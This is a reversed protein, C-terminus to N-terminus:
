YERAHTERARTNFNRDLHRLSVVCPMYIGTTWKAPSGQWILTTRNTTAIAYRKAVRYYIQMFIQM